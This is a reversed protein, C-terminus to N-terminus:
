RMTKAAQAAARAINTRGYDIALGLMALVPLVAFAFYIAVSGDRNRRLRHLFQLFAITAKKM